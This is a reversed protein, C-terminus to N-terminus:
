SAALNGNVGCGGKCAWPRVLAGHQGATGLDVEGAVIVQPGWVDAQDSVCVVDVVGDASETHLVAGDAECGRGRHVTSREGVVPGGADRGDGAFRVVRDVGVEEDIAGLLVQVESGEPGVDVLGRHSRRGGFSGTCAILDLVVGATGMGRLSGVHDLIAAVVVEEEGAADAAAVVGSAWRRTSLVLDLDASGARRSSAKYTKEFTFSVTPCGSVSVCTSAAPVSQLSLLPVVTKSDWPSM